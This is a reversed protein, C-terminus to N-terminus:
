KDNETERERERFCLNVIIIAPTQPINYNNLVCGVYIISVKIAINAETKVVNKLVSIKLCYTIDSVVRIVKIVFM